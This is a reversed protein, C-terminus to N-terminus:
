IKSHTNLVEGKREMRKRVAEREGEEGDEEESGGERM